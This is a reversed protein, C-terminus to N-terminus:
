VNEDPFVDKILLNEIFRSVSRGSDGSERMMDVIRSYTDLSLFITVEEM